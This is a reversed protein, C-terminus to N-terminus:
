PLSAKFYCAGRVIVRPSRSPMTGSYRRIAYNSGALACVQYKQPSAAIDCACPSPACTRGRVNIKWRAPRRQRRVSRQSPCGTNMPAIM